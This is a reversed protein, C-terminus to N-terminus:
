IVNTKARSYYSYQFLISIVIFTFIVLYINRYIVAAIMGEQLTLLIGSVTVGFAGGIFQCLQVIGLGAGIEDRSLIRSVENSVSSNIAAFGSSAFLYTGLIYYHAVSSFFAYMLLSVALFAHGYFMIPKTGRKDIQRGIFQGAIVAIIAGPFIIMGVEAPSRGFENTLIIPMLFLNSFNFLYATFGIILLKRYQRNCLLQPRIFPEDKKNLHRWWIFLLVVTFFFLYISFSSFFLLASTVSLATFIVGTFDFRGQVIHEKPLLTKYFPIFFLVLATVAFLYKWGLFETVLGGIVPGLGFGLSAGSAIIAMARGRRSLPIFRGAVIMGLGPVAGAGIAQFIRAALLSYFHNTFLGAISSVALISLGMLILRSIPIFDSLRSFTLTSIAFAISYGSVIWSALSSSISLELLVSPLAINFMTTNMVVLWTTIAWVFVIQKEKSIVPELESNSLSQSPM